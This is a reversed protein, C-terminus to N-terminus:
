IPNWSTQKTTNPNIRPFQFYFISTSPLFYIHSLLAALAVRLQSTLAKKRPAYPMCFALQSERQTGALSPFGPLIGPRAGLRKTRHADWRSAVYMRTQSGQFVQTNRPLHEDGDRPEIRPAWTRWGRASQTRTTRERVGAM